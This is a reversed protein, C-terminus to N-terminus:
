STEREILKRETINGLTPALFEGGEHGLWLGGGGEQPPFQLALQHVRLGEKSRKKERGPIGVKEERKQYQKCTAKM